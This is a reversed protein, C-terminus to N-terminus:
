LVDWGSFAGGGCVLACILFRGRGVVVLVVFGGGVIRAIVLWCWLVGAGVIVVFLVGVLWDGFGVGRVLWAWSLGSAGVVWYCCGDLDGM